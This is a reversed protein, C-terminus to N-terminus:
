CLVADRSRVQLAEQGLAHARLCDFKFCTM